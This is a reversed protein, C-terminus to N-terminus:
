SAAVLKFLLHWLFASRYVRRAEPHNFVMCLKRIVSSAIYLRAYGLDVTVFSPTDLKGKKKLRNAWGKYEFAELLRCFKYFDENGKSRLFGILSRFQEIRNHAGRVEEMEYDSLFGDKTDSHLSSLFADVPINKEMEPLLANLAKRKREDM